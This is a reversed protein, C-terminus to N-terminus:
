YCTFFLFVSSYQIGNKEMLNSSSDIEMKRNISFVDWLYFELYAIGLLSPNDWHSFMDSICGTTSASKFFHQSSKRRITLVFIPHLPYWYTQDMKRCQFTWPRCSHLGRFLCASNLFSGLPENFCRAKRRLLLEMPLTARLFELSVSYKMLLRSYKM